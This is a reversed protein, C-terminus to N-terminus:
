YVGDGTMAVVDGDAKLAEVLRQKLEAVARAFIATAPLRRRLEADDMAELEPGTITKGPALGAQRAIAEATAPHDGTIMIVRIGATRCEQVAAAVSPRLPDALGVLGLLEFHFDHQEEPLD